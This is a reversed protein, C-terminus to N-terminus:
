PPETKENALSRRGRLLYRARGNVGGLLAELTALAVNSRATLRQVSALLEEDPLSELSHAHDM